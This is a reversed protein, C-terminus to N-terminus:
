SILMLLTRKGPNAFLFDDYKVVDHMPAFLGHNPPCRFLRRNGFTGDCGGNIIPEDQLIPFLIRTHKIKTKKSGCHKTKDAQVFFSTSKHSIHHKLLSETEAEATLAFFSSFIYCLFYSHCLICLKKLVNTDLM